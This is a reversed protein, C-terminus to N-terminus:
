STKIQYKIRSCVWGSDLRPCSDGRWLFAMRIANRQCVPLAGIKRADQSTQCLNGWEMTFPICKVSTIHGSKLKLKRVGLFITINFHIKGLYTGKLRSFNLSAKFYNEIVERNKPEFIYFINKLFILKKLTTKNFILVLSKLCM